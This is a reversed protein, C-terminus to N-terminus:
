WGKNPTQTSGNGDGGSVQRLAQADLEIPQRVPQTTSEPRTKGVIRQVWLGVTQQVKNM